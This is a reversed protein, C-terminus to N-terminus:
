NLQDAVNAAPNLQRGLDLMAHRAEAMTKSAEAFKAQNQTRAAQKLAQLEKTEDVISRLLNAQELRNDGPATAATAVVDKMLKARVSQLNRDVNAGAKAIRQVAQVQQAGHIALLTESISLFREGATTQLEQLTTVGANQLDRIVLQEAPLKTMSGERALAVSELAQLKDEIDQQSVIDQGQAALLAPAAAKSKTLANHLFAVELAFAVFSKRYESKLADLTLLESKLGDMKEDLDKSMQAVQERLTKSRLKAVRDLEEHVRDMARNLAKKSFVGIVRDKWNPKANMIADALEDLKQKEIAEDLGDLLHFIQPNQAQTIRDLYQNLSAQLAKTPGESLTVIQDQRLATFDFKAVRAQLAATHEDTLMLPFNKPLTLEFPVLASDTQPQPALGMGVTSVRRSTSGIITPQM